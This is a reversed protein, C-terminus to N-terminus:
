RYFYDGRSHFARRTNRDPLSYNVGWCSGNSAHLRVEIPPALPMPPLTLGNGVAHATIRSRGPEGARLMLSQIPAVPNRYEYGWPRAKWCSRGACDEAAPLLAHALLKSKGSGTEIVCLDYDTALVPNGFDAMEAIGEQWKWTFQDQRGLQIALMGAQPASPMTCGGDDSCTGKGDCRSELCPDGANGCVTGAPELHCTHDCCDGDVHNGDDCEEPAMVVGDGCVAVPAAATEVIAAVLAICDAPKTATNLYFTWTGHSRFLSTIDFTQIDWLAVGDDRSTGALPVSLGDFQAATDAIDLKHNDSTIFELAADSMVQGDAVHLQINVAGRSFVIDDFIAHWGADELGAFHDFHTSDNGEFFVLDHDNSPDGDDFLVILSAGNPQHAPQAMLGSLAYTGDGTVYPTVDAVYATSSGQGWCNSSTDGMSTGTVVNGDIAITPNDYEEDHGADVAMGDWYLYAQKVPGSVGAVSISATDGSIGGVGASVWDVGQVTRARQLRTASAPGAVLLGLAAIVLIRAHSRHM